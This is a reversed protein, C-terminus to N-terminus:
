CKGLSFIGGYRKVRAIERDVISEFRRRNYLGTLSDHAALKAIELYNERAVRALIVTLVSAAAAILADTVFPGIPIGNLVFNSLQFVVSLILGGFIVKRSDCHLAIAALPFIYLTHLRIDVPTIVDFVFVALMVLVSIVLVTSPSLHGPTLCRRIFNSSM